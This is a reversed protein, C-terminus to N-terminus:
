VTTLFHTQSIVSPMKMWAPCSYGASITNAGSSPEEDIVQLAVNYHPGLAETFYQVTYYISESNTCFIPFNTTHELLAAYQFLFRQSHLKADMEGTYPNIPNVSNELSTEQELNNVDTIFFDYKNNM